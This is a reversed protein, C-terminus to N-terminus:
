RGRLGTSGDLPRGRCLGPDAMTFRQQLRQQYDIRGTFSVPQWSIGVIKDIHDLAFRLIQGIQHDNLGKAITPVLVTRIDAQILNELARLKIEYLPRGRTKRYIEDDLGDFQLYAINLGAESAQYAFERNQAFSIGNTAVQIQAYGREKARRLCEIFEPHITPEGGSYQLCPPQVEHVSHIRDLMQDLDDLSIESVKGKKGANAFCIPCNLNCRNTLDINVMMPPSLHESCLGCNEPCHSSLAHNPNTVGRPRARDRMLMLRYFTADTSILELWNGHRLCYKRMFVQGEEADITAQIVRHCEPCLSQTSLPFVTDEQGHPSTRFVSRKLKNIIM